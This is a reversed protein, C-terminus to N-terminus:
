SGDGLPGIQVGLHLSGAVLPTVAYGGGFQGGVVLRTNPVAVRVGAVGMIGGDLRMELDLQSILLPIDVGAFVRLPGLPASFLAGVSFLPVDIHGTVPGPVAGSIAFGGRLEIWRFVLVRGTFQPGLSTMGVRNDFHLLVLGIEATLPAWSAEAAPFAIPPPLPPPLPPVGGHGTGRCAAHDAGCGRLLACARDVEAGPFDTELYETLEVNAQDCMGLIQFCEALYLRAQHLGPNIQLALQFRAVAGECDGAEKMDLAEFFVTQADPTNSQATASWAGALVLALCAFTLTSRCWLLM